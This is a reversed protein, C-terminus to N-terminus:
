FVFGLSPIFCRSDRLSQQGNATVNLPAQHEQDQFLEKNHLFDLFVFEGIRVFRHLSRAHKVHM